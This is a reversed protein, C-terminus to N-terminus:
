HHTQQLEIQNVREKRKGTVYDEESMEYLQPFQQTQAFWFALQSEHRRHDDQEGFKDFFATFAFYYRLLNREAVGTEGKSYIPVGQDDHDVVKIGQKNKGKTALYISMAISSIWSRQNSVYIRGFSQDDVSIVEVDIHYDSTGLPGDSAIAVSSFYGDKKITNFRYTLEYADGPQQYFKRGMYVTM